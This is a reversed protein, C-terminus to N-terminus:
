ETPPQSFQNTYAESLDPVNTGTADSNLPPQMSQVPAHMPVAGGIQNSPMAGAMPMQNVPMAGAMPMQSGVNYGQFAPQPGGLALGIILIILGIPIGCCCAASSLGLGGLLSGLDEGIATLMLVAYADNDFLTFDVSENNSDTVSVTYDSNITCNADSYFTECVYASIVLGDHIQDEETWEDFTCGRSIVDETVDTGDADTVTVNFDSCGDVYGDEDSDVYDLSVLVQFAVSGKRDEDVYTFTASGDQSKTYYPSPDDDINELNEGASGTLVGGLVTLLIFIGTVVGGAITVGKNM